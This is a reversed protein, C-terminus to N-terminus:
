MLATILTYLCRVKYSVILAEEVDDSWIGSYLLELNQRELNMFCWAIERIGILQEENLPARRWFTVVSLM